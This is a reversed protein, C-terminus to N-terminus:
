KWFFPQGAVLTTTRKQIRETSQPSSPRSERLSRHAFEGFGQATAQGSGGGDEAAADASLGHGCGEGRGAEGGDDVVLLAVIGVETRRLRGPMVQQDVTGAEGLGM